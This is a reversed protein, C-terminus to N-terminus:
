RIVVKRGNVIYFGPALARLEALTRAVIRGALNYVEVSLKGDEPDADIGEIGSYSLCIVEASATLGTGDVTSATVTFRGPSAVGFEATLDTTKLGTPSAGASFSWAVKNTTVDAPLITATISVTGGPFTYFTRGNLSLSTALM